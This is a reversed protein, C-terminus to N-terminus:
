RLNRPSVSTSFNLTSQQYPLATSETGAQLQFDITVESSSCSSVFNTCNIQYQGSTEILTVPNASSSAITDPTPETNSACIFSTDNGDPSTVTIETSPISPPCSIETAHRIMRRMLTLTANGDQKLEEVVESNRQSRSVTLFVTSATVVLVGVVGVVVMLEILTFASRDSIPSNEINLDFNM